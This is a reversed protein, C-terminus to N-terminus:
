RVVSWPRHVFARISYGRGPHAGLDERSVLSIWIQLLSVLVGAVPTWFGAFLFIGVAAAGVEPIALSVDEGGRLRPLADYILFTSIALRLLM